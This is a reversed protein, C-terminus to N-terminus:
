GQGRTEQFENRRVRKDREGRGGSRREEGIRKRSRIKRGGRGEEEGRMAM